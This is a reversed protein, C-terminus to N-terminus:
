RTEEKATPQLSFRIERGPSWPHPADHGLSRDALALHQGSGQLYGEDRRSHSIGTLDHLGVHHALDEVIMLVDKLLCLRFHPQSRQSAVHCGFHLFEHHLHHVIARSGRGSYIADLYRALGAGRFDLIALRM